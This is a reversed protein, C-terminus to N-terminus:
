GDLVSMVMLSLFAEGSSKVVAMDVRRAWCLMRVRSTTMGTAPTALNDRRLSRGTESSCSCMSM